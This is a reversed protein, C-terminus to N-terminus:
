TDDSYIGTAKLYLRHDDALSPDNPTVIVSSLTAASVVLTTTGSITGISATITATGASNAKAQISESGNSREMSVVADDSSTWYVSDTLDRTSKDSYIGTAIVILRTGNAITKNIPSVELTALTAAGVVTLTFSKTTGSCTASITTTGAGLASLLGRTSASFSAVASNSSTWTAESSCDVSTSNTYLKAASLQVIQGANMSTTTPTIRITAVTVANDDEEM